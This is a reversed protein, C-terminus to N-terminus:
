YWSTDRFARSGFPANRMLYFTKFDSLYGRNRFRSTM